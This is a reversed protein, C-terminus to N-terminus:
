VTKPRKSSKVKNDAVRQTSSQQNVANIVEPPLNASATDSDKQMQLMAKGLEKVLASDIMSPQSPAQVGIEQGQLKMRALQSDISRTGSAEQLDQRMIPRTAPKAKQASDVIGDRDKNAKAAHVGQGLAYDDAKMAMDVKKQKAAGAGSAQKRRKKRGKGFAAHNALAAEIQRDAMEEQQLAQDQAQQEMAGVAEELGGKLTDMLRQVTQKALKGWQEPQQSEDNSIQMTDAISKPKELKAMLEISHELVELTENAAQIRPNNMLDPQSLLATSVTEYYADILMNMVEREPATQTPNGTDVFDQLSKESFQINRLWDLIIHGHRVAEVRQHQRVEDVAAKNQAAAFQAVQENAIDTVRANLDRSDCRCLPEDRPPLAMLHEPSFATKELPPLGWQNSEQGALKRITAWTTGLLGNPTQRDLAFEYLAKGGEAEVNLVDADLSPFLVRHIRKGSNLADGIENAIALMKPFYKEDGPDFSGDDMYICMIENRLVALNERLTEYKKYDQHKPDFLEPRKAQDAIVKDFYLYTKPDFHIDVTNGQRVLALHAAYTNEKPIIFRGAYPWYQVRKLAERLDSRQNKVYEEERRRLHLEEIQNANEPLNSYENEGQTNYLRDYSSSNESGGPLADTDSVRDSAQNNEEDNNFLDAM